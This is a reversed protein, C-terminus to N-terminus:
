HPWTRSWSSNRRKGAATARPQSEGDTRGRGPLAVTEIWDPAHRPVNKEIFGKATIGNPYRKVAVPSHALHPLMVPAIRAYYDLM